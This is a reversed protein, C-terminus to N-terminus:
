AAALRGVSCPPPDGLWVEASTRTDLANRADREALRAEVDERSAEDDRKPLAGRSHERAYPRRAM